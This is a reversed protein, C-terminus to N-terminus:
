WHASATYKTSAHNLAMTEAARTPFGCFGYPGPRTTYAMTHASAAVHSM